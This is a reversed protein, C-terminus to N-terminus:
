NESFMEEESLLMLSGDRGSEYLYWCEKEGRANVCRVRLDPLVDSFWCFVKLNDGPSLADAAYLTEAEAIEFPEDNWILKELAFDSVAERFRLVFPEAEEDAIVDIFRMGAAGGQFFDLRIAGAEAAQPPFEMTEMIEWLKEGWGDPDGQPYAVYLHYLDDTGRAVIEDCAYPGIIEDEIEHRCIWCPLALDMEGSLPAFEEPPMWDEPVAGEPGGAYPGSIRIAAQNQRDKWAVAFGAENREETKESLALPYVLVAGDRASVDVGFVNADYFFSIGCESECAQWDAEEAGASAGCLLALALLISAIRKM